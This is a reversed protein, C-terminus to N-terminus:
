RILVKQVKNGKKILFVGNHPKEVVRGTLDYYIEESEEDGAFVSEIGTALLTVYAYDSSDTVKIGDTATVSYRYKAGSKLNEFKHSNETVNVREVLTVSYSTEVTVNIDDITVRRSDSASNETSFEIYFESDPADIGVSHSVYSSTATYDAIKTRTGNKDVLYLTLVSGTDKTNYLKLNFKVTVKGNATLAPTKLTGANAATGIRMAGIATYLRSGTWGSVSMYTDLSSLQLNNSSLKIFDESLLTETAGSNSMDVLELSVTYGTAAELEEWNAIFSSETINAAEGIQPITLMAKMFSFSVVGAENKINTIPKGMYGGSYVTAAPTTYDTLETNNTSGPWTDGSLSNIYEDYSAATSYTTLDNDAPIITFRQHTKENNVTNNYWVNALYDVHTILMGSNFIYKDWGEKQRNELIYYENPNNENIVKYGKGDSTLAAMSYDGKETLVELERWGMFDREYASYGIPVYGNVNYCGYDMLDWYDMGFNPPNNSSTDYFDPLGLSHSFEHCCSGIGTFNIGYTSEYDANLSLESSCAYNDVYVGDLQIKGAYASLYWQHPWITEEPAGAAEAYGAYLCYLFEITGDGDNDFISFDFSSDAARCADIIMQQPNKDDGDSDNGGYYAMNNSLTIIDTVIFNPKFKGDSQAIFYERLSGETESIFPNEPGKFNTGNFTNSAYEKTFTFKCDAFEVLLVPVNIEGLPTITQSAKRRPANFREARRVAAKAINNESNDEAISALLATENATRIEASHALTNTTVLRGESTLRAYHYDGNTDCILPVGDLTSYYHLSEDGVLRVVLETGDSQKVKKTNRQAPIAFLGISICLMAILLTFKKMLM